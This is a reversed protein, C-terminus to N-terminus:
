ARGGSRDPDAPGSRRWRDHRAGRVGAHGGVGSLRGPRVALHRPRAKKAPGGGPAVGCDSRGAMGARGVRTYFVAIVTIAIIDDVIAATLLLLKAGAPVRKGLLALVGVAFAIDTAMPIGWGRAALEGYQFILYIGAPVVMGGIAAMIPLAARQVDRLEGRVIERKVELGIVFFFVAMLGDNILHKLSHRFEFDGASFGITTKWVSLFPAAMATNALILAALTAVILVIGGAAEIHMFHVIPDVFRDIPRRPLKLAGENARDGAM